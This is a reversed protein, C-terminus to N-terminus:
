FSYATKLMGNDFNLSINKTRDNINNFDYKLPKLKSDLTLTKCMEPNQYTISMNGNAFYTTGKYSNNELYENIIQTGDSSFDVRINDYKVYELKGDPSYTADFKQSSALELAGNSYYYKQCNDDVVISNVDFKPSPKLDEDNLIDIALMNPINVTKTETISVLGGNYFSADLSVNKNKAETNKSIDIFKLDKTMSMTSVNKGNASTKTIYYKNRIYDYEIVEKSGDDNYLYKEAGELEGEYYHSAAIPKGTEKSYSVVSMGHYEGDSIYNKQNRIVHGTEKDTTIISDFFRDDQKNPTYVTKIEENEDVISHLLGDSTYIREGKILSVYSPDLNIPTLPEMSFRKIRSSNANAYNVLHAPLNETFEPVSASKVESGRFAPKFVSNVNGIANIKNIM